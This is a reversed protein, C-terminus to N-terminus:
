FLEGIGLNMNFFQKLCIRCKLKLAFENALVHHCPIQILTSLGMKLQFKRSHSRQKRSHRGGQKNYTLRAHVLSDPHCGICASTPTISGEM